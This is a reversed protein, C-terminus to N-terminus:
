HNGPDLESHRKPCSRPLSLLIAHQEVSMAVSLSVTAYKSAPRAADGMALTHPFSRTIANRHFEAPSQASLHSPLEKGEVPCRSGLQSALARSKWLRVAPIAPVQTAAVQANTTGALSHAVVRSNAHHAPVKVASAVAPIGAATVSVSASPKVPTTVAALCLKKGLEVVAGKPVCRSVPHVPGQIAASAAVTFTVGWCSRAHTEVLGWTKQALSSGNPNEVPVLGQDPGPVPQAPVATACKTVHISAVHYCNEVYRKVNGTPHPVPDIQQPPEVSANKVARELVPM